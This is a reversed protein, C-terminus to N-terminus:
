LPVMMVAVNWIVRSSPQSYRSFSALCFTICTCDDASGGFFSASPSRATIASPLSYLMNWSFSFPRGTSIM